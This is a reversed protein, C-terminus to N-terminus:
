SGTSYTTHLAFNKMILSQLHLELDSSILIPFYHGSKESWGWSGSIFTVMQQFKTSFIVGCNAYLQAM